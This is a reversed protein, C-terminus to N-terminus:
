TVKKKTEIKVKNWKEKLCDDCLKYYIPTGNAYYMIVKVSSVANINCRACVDAM